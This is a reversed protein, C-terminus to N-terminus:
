KRFDYKEFLQSTDEKCQLDRIIEPASSYEHFRAIDCLQYGIKTANKSTGKLHLIFEDFYANFPTYQVNRM